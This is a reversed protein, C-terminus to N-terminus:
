VCCGTVGGLMNEGCTHRYGTLLCCSGPTVSSQASYFPVNTAPSAVVLKRSHSGERCYLSYLCGTRTPANTTSGETTRTKRSLITAYAYEYPFVSPLILYVHVDANNM